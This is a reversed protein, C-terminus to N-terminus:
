PRQPPTGQIPPNNNASPITNNTPTVGSTNQSFHKGQYESDSSSYRMHQPIYGSDGAPATVNVGSAAGAAARQTANLPDTAARQTPSAAPSSNNGTNSVGSGATTPSSVAPISNNGTNNPGSGATAPATRSAQRVQSLYSSLNDRTDQNMNSQAKASNMASEITSQYNTANSGSVKSQLHGHKKASLKSAQDVSLGGAYSSVANDYATQAKGNGWDGNGSRFDQLSGESVLANGAKAAKYASERLAAAERANKLKSADNSTNVLMEEIDGYSMSDGVQDMAARRQYIDVTHSKGKKDKYSGTKAIELLQDNDLTLNQQKARDLSQKEVDDVISNKRAGTSGLANAARMLARGRVTNAGGQDVALGSLGNGLVNAAARTAPNFVAAKGVAKGASRSTKNIRNAMGTRAVGGAIKGSVMGMLGGSAKFMPVIALAPLILCIAQPVFPPIPVSGDLTSGSIDATLKSMWNAGGWVAAFMPYILLMKVFWNFWTKAWKETNPLLYCVFAIPSIVTLVILLIQRVYLCLFIVAIAAIAPGLFLVAAIITVITVVGGALGDLGVSVTWKSAGGSILGYLGSGIINSLDVLAACIYFSINVAVAVIILRPLMKKVEYNSLGTSTAMSYIMVLFAIVFAVNAINLFDQWRGIVAESNDALFTWNLQGDIWNLFGNMVSELLNAGPCFIWGFGFFSSNCTDESDDSAPRSCKQGDGDEDNEDWVGGSETCGAETKTYFCDDNIWEGGSATCETEDKANEVDTIKRSNDWCTTVGNQEVWQVGTASGFEKGYKNAWERCAEESKATDPTDCSGDGSDDWEYGYDLCKQRRTAKDEGVNPTTGGETGPTTNDPDICRGESTSFYEGEACDPIDECFGNSNEYQGDPCDTLHPGGPNGSSTGGGPSTNTKVCQGSSTEFVEGEECDPIDVCQWGNKLYQGDPCDGVINGGVEPVAQTSVSFLILSVLTATTLGVTMFVSKSSTEINKWWKKKM